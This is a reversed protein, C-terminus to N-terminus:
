GRFPDRTYADPEGELKGIGFPKTAVLVLLLVMIIVVAVIMKKGALLHIRQEIQLTTLPPFHMLRLVLGVVVAGRV